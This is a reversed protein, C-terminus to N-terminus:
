EEEEEEDDSDVEGPRRVLRFSSRDDSPLVVTHEVDESSTTEISSLFTSYVTDSYDTERTSGYDSSFANRGVSLPAAASVECYGDEEEEEEE